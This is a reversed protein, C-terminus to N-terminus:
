YIHTSETEEVPADTQDTDMSVRFRVDGAATGKVVVKWTAKARPALSALPAFKIVKGQATGTTPGTSSVYDQEAPLTVTIVINTDQASGQNTVTIEYTENQGVEIPDEIDVVELLVAPVGKTEMATSAQAEACIATARAVNTVTGATNAKLVITVKKSAGPELTGLNWTVQGGSLSGGDTASVFETGAPIPDVLTTNQAPTDGRNTVTIEYNASRGIYREKPGTKTVELVPQRVVTACNAEATLGGDASASVVNNYSGPKSAKATFRIEKAQGPGLDGLSGSVANKGDTTTLGAPLNDSFKVNKAVGDGTNRVVVVYEIPDCVTVNAPCRKEIALKPSTVVTVCCDKANLGHDARVEACNEFKGTQTAKAQVQITASAGGKLSGIQWTVSNGSASGSPTSSVYQIGAPITDTVVVNNADVPSPNNVTISYSVADGVLASPTCEKNIAIKPGVWTKSTQGEAIKVEPSCCVTNAPRVITISINNTGEAPTTQRLTVKAFGTSDTTITAVKSNGPEFVADPGDLIKYTVVHGAIPDDNSYKSLLTVFEHTTGIPNTAPPPFQWKIDYWGKRAFAKHKSWDYIAPCYATLITEGEIPSSIVCWTQGVDLHVDDSPDDTGMTLVHKFNNTHSVAYRNDVKYGRSNRWGSEDVEIIDGVSGESPIIWEVRRNPLPKGKKDRVTAIIIHQTMVPNVDQVPTLEISAAYPDWNSYYGGEPPKAHSPTIDGGGPWTFAHPMHERCGALALVGGAVTAALIFTLRRSTM